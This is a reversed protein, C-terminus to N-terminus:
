GSIGNTKAPEAAAAAAPSPSSAAGGPSFAGARFRPRNPAPRSSAADRVIVRRIPM